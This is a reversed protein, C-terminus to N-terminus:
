NKWWKFIFYYKLSKNFIVHLVWDMPAKCLQLSLSQGAFLIVVAQVCWVYLVYIPGLLGSDFSMCHSPFNVTLCYFVLSSGLNLSSSHGQLTSFGLAPCSSPESPKFSVCLFFCGLFSGSCSFSWVHDIQCSFESPGPLRSWLLNPSFNLEPIAMASMKPRM